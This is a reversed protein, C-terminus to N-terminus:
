KFAGFFIFRDFALVKKTTKSEYGTMKVEAVLFLVTTSHHGSTTKKNKLETSILRSQLIM